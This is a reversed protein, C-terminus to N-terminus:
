LEYGTGWSNKNYRVEFGFGWVMWDLLLHDNNTGGDLKGPM